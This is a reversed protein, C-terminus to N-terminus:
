KFRWGKTRVLSEDHSDVFVELDVVRADMIQHQEPPPLLLARLDHTCPIGGVNM